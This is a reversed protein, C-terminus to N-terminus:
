VAGETVYIEGLYMTTLADAKEFMFLMGTATGLTKWNLFEFGSVELVNKGPKITFTDIPAEVEGEVYCYMTVDTQTPNYLVIRVEKTNANLVNGANLPRVYVNKKQSNFQVKEVMGEVGIEAGDVVTHTYIKSDAVGKSTEQMDYDVLIHSAGGLNYVFKAGDKEICLVNSSGSLTFTYESNAQVSEGNMAVSVGEGAVFAQYGTGTKEFKTVFVGKDALEHLNFLQERAELLENGNAFVKVGSYLSDYLVGLIEDADYGAQAYKNELQYLLEYDDVSDRVSVLRNSAMPGFIGYRAGPYLVFGDGNTGPYRMAETYPDCKEYHFGGSWSVKQYYCTEYYLRGSINYDNCIWGFARSTNLGNPSDLNLTPMPETSLNVTYAWYEEGVYNERQQTTKMHQITPCWLEVNPMLDSYYSTMLAKAGRISEALLAKTVEGNDPVSWTEVEAAVRDAVENFKDVTEVAKDTTNNQVAEDVCYLWYRAKEFYNRGDELSIEAVAKLSQVFLDENFSSTGDAPVEYSNIRDYYKRISAKFEEADTASPFRRATVNYDLLFEYYADFMERTDNLEGDVILVYDTNYNTLLKRNTPLTLDKVELSVEVVKQIGDLTITAQGTYVGVEQNQDVKASLIISQNQGGKITNEKYEVAKEYPLLIDPYFGFPNNTYGDSRTKIEIYKQYYLSLNEAPFEVGEESILTGVTIECSKVDKSPKVVIQADETEGKASTIAFKATSKQSATAEVDQLIKETIPTAFLEIENTGSGILTDCSSGVFLMSTVLLTALRKTSKRM